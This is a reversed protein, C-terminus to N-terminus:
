GGPDVEETQLLVVALVAVVLAGVPIPVGTSDRATLYLASAGVTGVAGVGLLGGMLQVESVPLKEAVEQERFYLALSLAFAVAFALAALAWLLSAQGMMGDHFTVASTPLMAYVNGFLQTGGYTIDLPEMAETVDGNIEFVWPRRFQVEFLAFRFFYVSAQGDPPANPQYAVNWPLLVAIWASLVALESAYESRVWM